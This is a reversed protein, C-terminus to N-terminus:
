RRKKIVDYKVPLRRIFKEQPIYAHTAADDKASSIYEVIWWGFEDEFVLNKWACIKRIISELEPLVVMADARVFGNAKNVDTWSCYGNDIDKQEIVSVQTFWSYLSCPICIAVGGRDSIIMSNLTNMQSPFKRQIDLRTLGNVYIGHQLITEYRDNTSM